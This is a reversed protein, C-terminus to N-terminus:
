NGIAGSAIRDAGGWPGGQQLVAECARGIFLPQWLGEESQHFLLDAHFLRYGPLTKEFVLGLM